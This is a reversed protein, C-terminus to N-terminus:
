EYASNPLIDCLELLTQRMGGTYDMVMSSELVDGNQLQASISLTVIAQDNQIELSIIGDHLRAIAFAIPMGLGIGWASDPLLGRELLRTYASRLLQSGNGSCNNTVQMTLHAGISDIRLTIPTGAPSHKAANSILNLLARKLLPLDACFSIKRQPLTYSFSRGAEQFLVRIEELLDSFFADTDTHSLTMRPHESNLRDIEALNAAIRTLRYMQRTLPAADFEQTKSCRHLLANLESLPGRMVQSTVAMAHTFQLPADQLQMLFLTGDHLPQLLVSYVQKFLPITLNLKGSRDWLDYNKKEAGLWAPLAAACSPILHRAPENFVITGNNRLCFAPQQIISMTSMIQDVTQRHM